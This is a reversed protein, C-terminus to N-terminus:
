SPSTIALTHTDTHPLKGEFPLLLNSSQFLHLLVFFCQKALFHFFTEVDNYATSHRSILNTDEDKQFVFMLFSCMYQPFFHPKQIFVPGADSHQKCFLSYTRFHLGRKSSHTKIQIPSPLTAIAMTESSLKYIKAANPRLREISTGGRGSEQDNRNFGRRM